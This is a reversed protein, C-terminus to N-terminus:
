RKFHRRRQELLADVGWFGPGAFVLYFFIFCDLVSAEGGNLVPYLGRNAHGFFYVVAMEGSLIFAVARTFLGIALLSGGVVELLGAILFPLPLPEPLGPLAQPFHFLKMTGHEMYVLATVIRLISLVKPSWRNLKNM